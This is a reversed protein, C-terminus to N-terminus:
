NKQEFKGWLMINQMKENIFTISKHVTSAFGVRPMYTQHSGNVFIYNEVKSPFKNKPLCIEHSGKLIIKTTCRTSELSIPHSPMRVNKFKKGKLIVNTFLKCFEHNLQCIMGSM